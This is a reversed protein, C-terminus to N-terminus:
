PRSEIRALGYAAHEFAEVAENGVVDIGHVGKNAVSIAYQLHRQADVPIINREKLTRLLQGAGTRKSPVDHKQAIDRLRLEIIRRIRALGNWVEGELLERQAELLDSPPKPTQHPLEPIDRSELAIPSSEIEPGGVFAELRELFRTVRQRVKPSSSYDHLAFAGVGEYLYGGVESISDSKLVIDFADEKTKELAEKEYRAHRILGWIVGVVSSTGAAASM